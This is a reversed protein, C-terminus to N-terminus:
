TIRRTETLLMVLIAAALGAFTAALGITVALRSRESMM